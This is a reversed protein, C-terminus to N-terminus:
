PREPTALSVRLVRVPPPTLELAVDQGETLAHWPVGPTRETIAYQRDEGDRAYALSVEPVIAIVTATVTLM